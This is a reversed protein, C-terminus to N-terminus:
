GGIRSMQGSCRAQDEALTHGKPKDLITQRILGKIEDDTAGKRLLSKLDAEKDNLLCARLRGASTLRLRNCTDCFHHSIPSIFGVRGQLGDVSTLSYVRAPGDMKSGPLPELVGIDGIRKKLETSSIYSAENWTSRDGVPMFEIFRVQYPKEVALRAFDVFEDDNVGKMAVVNLKVDFGLREATEIGQWVRHFLDVGTIKMFREPRMSDLSINLKRIGARYLGEAKEHLLVGNTTLRIEDLGNIQSLSEIFNMVGRRVLPEGGTLRIKNMGMGVVLKVIRLLEEYSLLDEHQLVELGKDNDVPMCYVCRLNCRDTLSLRLYSITRSFMDVLENSSHINQDSTSM